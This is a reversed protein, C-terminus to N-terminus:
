INNVGRKYADIYSDKTYNLICIGHYKAYEQLRLHSKFVRAQSFLFESLSRNERTQDSGSYFHPLGVSVQNENNVFLYKLWSQEVGYLNIINFKMAIALFITANIVTEPLPMGLNRNYLYNEVSKIGSVPTYNFPVLIINENNIRKLLLSDKFASPIFLGMNWSISNLKLVLNNMKTEVDESVSSAFLLPDLLVYFSPKIIEFYKTLCFFNVAFIDKDFTENVNNEIFSSLSPGNGMVICEDFKKYRKRFQRVANNSRFSSFFLVSLLSFITEVIVSYFFYFFKFKKKM